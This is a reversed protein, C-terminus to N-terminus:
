REKAREREHDLDCIPSPHPLMKGADPIDTGIMVFCISGCINLPVSVRATNTVAAVITDDGASAPWILMTPLRTVGVIVGRTITGGTDTARPCWLWLVSYMFNVNLSTKM